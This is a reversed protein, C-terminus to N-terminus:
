KLEQTLLHALTLHFAQGHLEEVYGKSDYIAHVFEHLITTETEEPTQDRLYFITHLVPNYFGVESVGKSPGYSRLTPEPTGYQRALRTLYTRSERRSGLAARAQDTFDFMRNRM